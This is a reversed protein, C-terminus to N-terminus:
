LWSVILVTTMTVPRQGWSITAALFGAIERDEKRTYRHPISVPDDEIFWPKNYYDAKTNLLDAITETGQKM